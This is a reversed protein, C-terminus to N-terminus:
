EGLGDKSPAQTLDKQCFELVCDNRSLKMFIGAGSARKSWLMERGVLRSFPLAM